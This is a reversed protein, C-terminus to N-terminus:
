LHDLLACLEDKREAPSIINQFVLEGNAWTVNLVEASLLPDKGERAEGEAACASPPQPMEEGQMLLLNLTQPRGEGLLAERLFRSSQPYRAALDEDFLLSAVSVAHERAFAARAALEALPGNAESVILAPCLDLFEGIFGSFNHGAINRNSQVFLLPVAAEGWTFRLAERIICDCLAAAEERNGTFARTYDIAELGGAARAERQRRTAAAFEELTLGEVLAADDLRVPGRGLVAVYDQYSHHAEPKAGAYLARLRQAMVEHSFADFVLHSVAALLFFSDETMKVCLPRCVPLTGDYRDSEGLAMLEASLNELREERDAHESLDVFPVAACEEIGYV